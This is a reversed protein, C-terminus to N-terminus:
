FYIKSHFNGSQQSGSLQEKKIMFERKKKLILDIVALAKGYKEKETINSNRLLNFRMKFSVSALSKDQEKMNDM